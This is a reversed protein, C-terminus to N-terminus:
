PVSSSGGGDTEVPPDAIMSAASCSSHVTIVTRIPEVIPDIAIFLILVADLPLNLPDLVIALMSLIVVGTAGSTAMGALITGVLAMAMGSFGLSAEYLQTIFMVAVAFYLVNGYRCITLGLPVLLNTSTQDFNLKEHLADLASPLTAFGNRTGFALIIPEKLASMVHTFSSGSRKWIVITNIFLVLLCCVHFVVIFKIMSLLIETGIQNILDAMLCCLGFPLAYIIWRIIKSFVKFVADLLSLLTESHVTSMLGTAFGLIIAFLLVQLNMDNTLSYFINAPIISTFFKLLGPLQEAPDNLQFFFIELDPALPSDDIIRGLIGEDIGIGPRGIAGGALGFACTLVLTIGFVALMRKLYRKTSHSRLLGGISYAVASLLIPLVCMKLLSVYMRGFPALTVALKGHCAGIYMGLIMSAIVLWPNLLLDWTFWRRTTKESNKKQM